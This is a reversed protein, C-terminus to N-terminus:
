GSNSPRPHLALVSVHITSPNVKWDIDERDLTFQM